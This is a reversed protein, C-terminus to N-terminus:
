IHGYAQLSALLVYLFWLFTFFAATPKTAQGGLEAGFAARRAVLTLLCVVGCATFISVSFGLSGAEVVFAASGPNASMWAQVNANDPYTSAWEEFISSPCNSWYIAAVAWPMGLGLFVNVANSGTINGIANDANPDGVAAAKSAFTDPLSTGLAVFTIATVSDKLGMTCGLLGAMDGVIATLLGIFVLTVVFCPWGSLISPPPLLAFIVKWPVSLVHMTIGMCSKDHLAVANSFQEKYNSAGLMMKDQNFSLMSAITLARANIQDDGQINITCICSDAAGDTKEDFSPANPSGSANSLVVQFDEDKEVEDDKNIDIKIHKENEGDAFTLTGSAAVYDAGAIATGDKTTYKVSVKGKNGKKRLVTLSIWVDSESIFEADRSFSIVGPHDDDLIVVTAIGKTGITYRGSDELLEVQFSEDNEWKDDTLLKISILASSQGKKFQLKGNEVGVYDEGATATGEVTKYKVTMEEMSASGSRTVNLQAAGGSEEVEIVSTEFQVQYAPLGNGGTVVGTNTSKAPDPAVQKGALGARTANVRYYARSKPQDQQMEIECLEKLHADDQPVAGHRRKVKKVLLNIDKQDMEGETASRIGVTRKAVNQAKSCYGKDALYALIVLIPFFFFTILGETVTVVDPSSGMLIILLWVYALISFTGTIAFVNTDKVKRTEGNPLCAVCVASIVLLNFAASGVITSPGLAGSYFNASMIEIVSLL